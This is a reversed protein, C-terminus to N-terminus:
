KKRLWDGLRKLLLYISSAPKERAQFFRLLIETQLPLNPVHRLIECGQEITASQPKQDFHVMPSNGMSQNVEDEIVLGTRLGDAKSWEILQGCFILQQKVISQNKDLWYFFDADKNSHYWHSEYASKEGDLFNSAVKQLTEGLERPNLFTVEVKNPQRSATPKL